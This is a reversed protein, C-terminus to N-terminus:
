VALTPIARKDIARRKKDAEVHHKKCLWEVQLAKLYDHHHAEAPVAGCYCPQRKLQGSKLAQQVLRRANAKVWKDFKADADNAFLPKYKAATM